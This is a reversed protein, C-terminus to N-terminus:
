RVFPCQGNPCNRINGVTDPLVNTPTNGLRYTAPSLIGVRPPASPRGAASMAGIPPTTTYGGTTPNAPAVVGGATAKPQAQGLVTWGDRVVWRNGDGTQELHWGSPVVGAFSRVRCGAPCTGAPCGCEDGCVCGPVAPVSPAATWAPPPDPSWAAPPENAKAMSVGLFVAAAILLAWSLKVALEAIFPSLQERWFDTM